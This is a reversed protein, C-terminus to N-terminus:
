HAEPQDREKLELLLRMMEEAFVRSSEAVMSRETEDGLEYTIAPIGYRSHFYNKTNAQGSNENNEQRFEFDPLREIARSVWEQTFGDPNTPESDAQAYFLNERTSHFDLMLRIIDGRADREQLWDRVLRTEPQTFPGWDRNLDIGGANNRWHGLAVGDPNLFPIVVVGYSERFQTALETHALVTAVFARMALAGTIEPPHQRGLLLIYEAAKGAFAAYIPRGKASRGLLRLSLTEDTAMEQFWDLYFDSGLPEQASVWLPGATLAIHLLFSRGDDGLSVREEDLPQWNRGDHSVKPWYRAYGEAFSLRLDLDISNKPHLRFSYWPSPNIPPGNEPVIDIHLSGDPQIACDSFHGGEFFAEVLYDPGECFQDSPRPPTACGTFVACMLVFLWRNMIIRNRM